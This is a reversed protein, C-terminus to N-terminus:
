LELHVKESVNSQSERDDYRRHNECECKPKSWDRVTTITIVEVAVALRGAVINIREVM